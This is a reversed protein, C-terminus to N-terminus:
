KKNPDAWQVYTISSMGLVTDSVVLSSSAPPAEPLGLPPTVANGDEGGEGDENEPEEGGEAAADKTDGKRRRRRKRPKKKVEGVDESGEHSELKVPSAKVGGDTASLPLPTDLATAPTMTQPEPTMTPLEIEPPTVKVNPRTEVAQAAGDTVELQASPVAEGDVLIKRVPLSGASIHVAADHEKPPAKRNFWLL